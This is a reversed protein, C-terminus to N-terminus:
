LQTIAEFRGLLGEWQLTEGTLPQLIVMLDAQPTRGLRRCTADWWFRLPSGHRKAGNTFWYVAEVTEDRRRLTLQTAHGGALLLVKEQTVEWGAGRFCYRPDHVAHRNGNPDIVQVLVREQGVQYLRKLVRAERFVSKEVDSLPVQRSSFGPGSAALRDLRPDPPPQPLWEWVAILLVAVAILIWLWRPTRSPTTGTPAPATPLTSTPNM